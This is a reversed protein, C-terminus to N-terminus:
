SITRQDEDHGQLQGTYNTNAHICKTYRNTKQGLNSRHHIAETAAMPSAAEERKIFESQM